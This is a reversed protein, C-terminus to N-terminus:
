KLSEYYLQRWSQRHLRETSDATIGDGIVQQQLNGNGDTTILNNGISAGAQPLNGDLQQGSVVTSTGSASVKDQNNIVHDRNTDFVSQTTRAGTALDLGMLWGSIGYDCAAAPPTITTYYVATGLIFPTYIVREGADPLAVYWGLKPDADDAYAVPQPAPMIRYKGNTTSITNIPGQEVLKGVDIPTATSLDGQKDWLGYLYQTTKSQKDDLTLYRGSGFMVLLNPKTSDNFPMNPNYAVSPRSTIAQHGITTFLKSTVVSSAGQRLDFAWLNGFLDGAYVRDAIYDGSYDVVQIDSLGNRNDGNYTQSGTSVVYYDQNLDWVGDSGPGSLKLLFLVAQGYHAGGAPANYGGSVIVYWDIGSGNRIPAIVPQGMGYGLDPNSFEWMVRDASSTDSTMTEPHTVDLAYIGRGGSGLSGVLVTKWSGNLYADSVSPTADVYGRHQYNAQTLYHLGRDGSASSYLGRPVYAFQESGDSALFAHLMGDNGGVYVVGARSSMDTAFKAHTNTGPFPSSSPWYQNPKGVYVSSSNLMDGLRSGRKRLIAASSCGSNSGWECERKGRLYLLREQAASDDNVVTGSADTRLDDKMAKTLYGWSFPIGQHTDDNYTIIHRPKNSLSRNDLNQAASWQSSGISGDGNLKWARLDGQWGVSNFLSLYVASSSTLSLSNFSASAISGWVSAVHNLDHGLRQALSESQNFSFIEGRGNIVSHYLDDVRAPHHNIYNSQWNPTSIYADEALQHTNGYILGNGGLSMAFSNMHSLENCDLWDPHGSLGCSSDQPVNGSSGYGLKKYLKIAIDGLTAYTNDRYPANEHGDYNHLYDMPTYVDSYGDTAMLAANQQCSYQVPASEDSRKFQEGAFALAYHNPSNSYNGVATYVKQYLYTLESSVDLDFMSVNNRNNITFVGVRTARMKSLSHAISGRMAQHRRRYYTFWNAFNQIAAQYDASTAYNGPKIEYKDMTSGDPARCASCSANATYGSTDQAGAPRYYTAPFYSVSQLGEVLVTTGSANKMGPYFKFKWNNSGWHSNSADFDRTLDFDGASTYVPDFPAAAPNADSFSYGGMSPWPKYSVAPNYYLKNYDPSRAFAYADVPPVAFHSDSSDALLRMGEYSSNYGNPFLYIFQKWTSNSGGYENVNIRGPDSNNNEDRGVFSKDSTNWWLAGDSSPMAVEYDMSVSDDLSIILNPKTQNSLFLPVSSLTGPAAWASAYLMLGLAMGVSIKSIPRIEM